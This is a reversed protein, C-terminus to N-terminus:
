YEHRDTKGDPRADTRMSYSPEWQVSKWSIQYKLVKWFDTSFSGVENFDSLFLPYNVHLCIFMKIMDLENRRLILFKEFLIQLSFLVVYKINLLKKKKLFITDSIFYYPVIKNLRAPWNHSHPAQTNCTPYRRSCVCVCV